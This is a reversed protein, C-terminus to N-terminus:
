WMTNLAQLTCMKAYSSYDGFPVAMPGARVWPVDTWVVRRSLAERKQAFGLTVFVSTDPKPKLCATIKVGLVSVCVCARVCAPM